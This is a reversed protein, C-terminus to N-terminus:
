FCPQELASKDLKPSTFPTVQKLETVPFGGGGGWFFLLNMKWGGTGFKRPFKAGGPCIEYSIQGGQPPAYKRRFRVHSLNNQPPPIEQSM